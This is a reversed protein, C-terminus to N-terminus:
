SHRRKPAYRDRRRRAVLVLGGGGTTPATTTTTEVPAKPAVVETDVIVGAAPSTVRAGNPAVGTATANNISWGTQVDAPTVMSFASCTTSAVRALSPDRLTGDIPWDQPDVM